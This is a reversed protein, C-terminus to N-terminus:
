AFPERATILERIQGALEGPDFPKALVGLAGAARASEALAAGKGSLLLVPVGDLFGGTRWRRLLELGDDDGLFYDLLVLDPSTQRLAEEAQSGDDATVVSWGEERELAWRALLRADPDDDVVLIRM